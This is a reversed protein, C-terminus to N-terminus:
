KDELPHDLLQIFDSAFQASSTGETWVIPSRDESDVAIVGTSHSVDYGGTALKAGKEIFVGMADGATKIDALGGTLGIFTPDYRAVYAHLTAADDRAPDTTIFVVQIRDRQDQDLRTLSSALSSMVAGCIDPCNTYGYFLLTLPKTTDSRLNYPAGDDDTLTVDPVVYQQDLVAGYYGDDASADLAQGGSCGTLLLGALGVALAFLLPTPTRPV